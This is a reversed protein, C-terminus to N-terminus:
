LNAGTSTHIYWIIVEGVCEINEKQMIQLKWGIVGPFSPCSIFSGVEKSSRINLSM